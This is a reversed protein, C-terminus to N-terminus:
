HVHYWLSSYVKLNDLEAILEVMSLPYPSSESDRIPRHLSHVPEELKQQEVAYNLQPTPHLVGIERKEDTVVRDGNSINGGGSIHHSGTENLDPSSPRSSANAIGNSNSASDRRVGFANLVGKTASSM